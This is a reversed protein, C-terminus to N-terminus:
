VGFRILKKVRAKMGIRELLAGAHQSASELGMHGLVLALNRLNRRLFFVNACRVSGTAFFRKHESQGETFDFLTFRREAFIAELACWQLVTGPSWEMYAPDYGLYQYLLVGDRAPCFLFAVPKAGDFLVYARVQDQAALSEVHRLFGPSDPLGADLLREQYTKASVERALCHFESMQEPRQYCRWQVAGGFQEAFRRVKRTLTSRSKSSFKAKYDAFTQRLDIYYRQFQLPTYCIYPGSIRWRPQAAALPLSRLLFGACNGALAELPPHAIVPQRGAEPQLPVDRVQLWLARTFLTREGLRFKVNVRLRQWDPM